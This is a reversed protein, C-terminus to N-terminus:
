FRHSTQILRQTPEIGVCGRWNLCPHWVLVTIQVCEACM